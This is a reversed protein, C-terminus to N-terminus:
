AGQGFSPDANGCLGLTTLLVCGDTCIDSLTGCAFRFAIMMGDDGVQSKSCISLQIPPYSSNRSKVFELDLISEAQVVSDLLHVLDIGRSESTPIENSKQDCIECM